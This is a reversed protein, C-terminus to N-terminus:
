EEARGTAEEIGSSAKRRPRTHAKAVCTPMARVADTVSAGARLLAMAREIRRTMLYSHPPEGVAAHSRRSFHAPSVLAKRAM